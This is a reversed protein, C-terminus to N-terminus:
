FYRTVVFYLVGLYRHSQSLINWHSQHTLLNNFGELPANCMLTPRIMLVANEVAIVPSVSQRTM